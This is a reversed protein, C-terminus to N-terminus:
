RGDNSGKLELIAQELSEVSNINILKVEKSVRKVLSTLVKGPGIEVFTDIGDDIMNKIIGSFRVPNKVHKGLIEIINDDSKYPTSDINKYVKKSPLNIQIKELEEKLKDAAVSLKETHFPGKAKLITVKKAGLKKAKEELESIGEEDGSVVVQNPCNYNAPVVFGKTVAKCAKEVDEDSLGLVGAMQWNGAPVNDQMIQGRKAVIHIATDLDFTKAYTLATYEGLSLGALSEAEIGNQKLVELIGLSMTFIAIQANKTESLEEETLNFTINAIDMGSIQSVKKYVERVEEYNDYLDKGMGISQAGQGPFLFAIKM